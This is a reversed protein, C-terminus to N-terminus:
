NETELKFAKQGNHYMLEVTYLGSSIDFDALFNPLTIYSGSSLGRVPIIHDLEATVDTRQVILSSGHTDLYMIVDLQNGKQFNKPLLWDRVAAFFHLRVRGSKDAQVRVKAGKRWPDGVPRPTYIEFTM